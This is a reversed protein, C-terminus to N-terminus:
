EWPLTCVRCVWSRLPLIIYATSALATVPCLIYGTVTSSVVAIQLTFWSQFSLINDWDCCEYCEVGFIGLSMTVLNVVESKMFDNGSDFQFRTCRWNQAVWVEGVLGSLTVVSTFLKWRCLTCSWEKASPEIHKKVFNEKFVSRKEGAQCWFTAWITSLIACCSSIHM